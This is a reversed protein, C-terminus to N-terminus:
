IHAQLSLADLTTEMGLVTIKGTDPFLLGAAMRMLTTKGAGDPGILGTVMGRSVSLSVSNLAQTNRPSAPFSKSVNDFLVVQQSLNKGLMELNNSATIDDM